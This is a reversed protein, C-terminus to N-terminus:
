SRSDPGPVRSASGLLRAWGLLDVALTGALRGRLSDNRLLDPRPGPLKARRILWTRGGREEASWESVQGGREVVLSRRDLRIDVEEEVAAGGAADPPALTATFRLPGSSRVSAEGVGEFLRAYGQPSAIAAFARDATEPSELYVSLAADSAAPEPDGAAEFAESLVGADVGFLEALAPARPPTLPLTLRSHRDDVRLQGRAFVLVRNELLRHLLVQSVFKSEPRFTAEWRARFEADSISDRFVELGRPGEPVGGDFDVRLGRATESVEYGCVAGETRGARAPLLVSLPFGVDCLWERGDATVLLAAHDFDKEV